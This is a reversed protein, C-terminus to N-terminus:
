ITQYNQLFVCIKLVNKERNKGTYAHTSNTHSYAVSATNESAFGCMGTISWVYIGGMNITNAYGRMDLNKKYSHYLHRNSQGLKRASYIVTSLLQVRYHVCM